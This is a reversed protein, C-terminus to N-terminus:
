NGTEGGTLDDKQEQLEDARHRLQNWEMLRNAGIVLAVVFIVLILIRIVWQAPTTKGETKKKAM